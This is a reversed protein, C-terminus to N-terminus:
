SILSIIQKVIIDSDFRKLAKTSENVMKKINIQNNYVDLMCQALQKSNGPEFLLGGRGNLLIERPGCKCSSAINLTGVVASEILVTPLGEGFSSLVNARANRMYVFPNKTAGVFLIQKSSKLKKAYAKYESKKNGDGVLIMKVDPKGANNWFVDFGNLLTKIDKDPTLRTVSCFYNNEDFNKKDNALTKITKIDIPNYVCVLKDNAGYLKNFDEIFEDTLVVVKDYGKLRDIFNRKIFVDISSHVWAIKKVNKLHKFEDFCFDHYDILVDINSFKRMVFQRRVSRYVDRLLHIFIRFLFFHPLKTGLWKCPYLSYLKIDSHSKFYEKYLPEKVDVYTIISIDINKYKQLKDLTRILVSEVGGLQMDRLCFALKINKMFIV